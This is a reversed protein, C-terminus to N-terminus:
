TVPLPPQLWSPRDDDDVSTVWKVWEFGRRGPVVLRVPAGHGPRLPRGEYGVALYLRDLDGLPFHRAYGTASRVRVSRGHARGMLASLPVGDWSQESWWGGTCDLTAVVPTARDWLEAIAVAHGQVRLDWAAARTDEPRSDDFWIVTPLRDPDHSAVEHSGTHRRQDGALGALDSATRQVSHLVVAAGAVGGLRLVARRDLDRWTPRSPRSLVHWVLLPVVAAALLVHTWLATWQGVGYWLGTAHLLGLAITALVLVGFAASMWRTARGHRFGTRVSGRVKAPVLLLLSLGVVGHTGAAWGNWRDGLSWSAVGSAIAGVVLAELAVDVQRATM